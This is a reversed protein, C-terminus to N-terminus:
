NSWATTNHCTVCNTSFGSTVHNAAGTYDPLHCAVCDQSIPVALGGPHCANCNQAVHAGDLLFANHVFGVAVWNAQSHCRECGVAWGNIVHNPQALAADKQHCLHCEAPAGAYEGVRSRVHCSECPTVAHAAVLPFRTRAHDSVAGIASWTSEVHCRECDLGLNSQHPDVHCGGCGRDLYAGVPGRDNHCRLCNAESHAGSLPYGTVAEHDFEFDDRITKWDEPIHCLGCDGPFNTHPVMLGWQQSWGHRPVAHNCAVGLLALFSAIACVKLCLEARNRRKSRM